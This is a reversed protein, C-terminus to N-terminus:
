MRSAYLDTIYLHNILFREEDSPKRLGHHLDLIGQLNYFKCTKRGYREIIPIIKPLSDGERYPLYQAYYILTMELIKVECTDEDLHTIVKKQNLCDLCIPYKGINDQGCLCVM